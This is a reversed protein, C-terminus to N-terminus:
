FCAESRESGRLRSLKSGVSNKRELVFVSRQNENQHGGQPRRPLSCLQEQCLFLFKIFYKSNFFATLLSFPVSEREQSSPM